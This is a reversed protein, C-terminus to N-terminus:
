SNETRHSCCQEIRRALSNQLLLIHNTGIELNPFIFFYQGTNLGGVKPIITIIIITNVKIATGLWVFDIVPSRLFCSLNQMAISFTSNM